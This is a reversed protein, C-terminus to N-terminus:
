KSLWEQLADKYIVVSMFLAVSVIVFISFDQLFAVDLYRSLQDVVIAFSGLFMMVGFYFELDKEPVIHSAKAGLKAGLASGFLLISVVGLDVLDQGSYLLTGYGTSLAVVLITTGVAIAPNLGLLMTVAPVLLFGGGVGMLGALIGVFGGILVLFWLSVKRDKKGVRIIPYFCYKKILAEYENYPTNETKSTEMMRWGVFFLLLIYAMGVFQDASGIDEFYALIQSGFYVGVSMSIGLVGGLKYDTQGYERHKLISIISTGFVFALGTAVAQNTPFGLIMLLPTILFSGGMAFFGFLTGLLIGFLFFFVAFGTTLM